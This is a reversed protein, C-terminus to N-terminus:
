AGGGKGHARAHCLWCIAVLNARDNNLKNEDIHHVHFRNGWRTETRGCWQCTWKADDRVQRALTKWNPAYDWKAVGGKWAPNDAGLNRGLHAASADRIPIGFKRMYKTITSSCVGCEVAIDEMTRNYALYQARLWNPRKYKNPKRYHGPMYVRWRAKTTLWETHYGCGCKCLPQPKEREAIREALPRANKRGAYPGRPGRTGDSVDRRRTLHPWAEPHERMASARDTVLGLRSPAVSM